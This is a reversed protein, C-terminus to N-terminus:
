RNLSQNLTRLRETFRLPPEIDPHPNANTSPRLRAKVEVQRYHCRDHSLFRVEYVRPGGESTLSANPADSRTEQPSCSGEIALQHGVRLLRGVRGEFSAM